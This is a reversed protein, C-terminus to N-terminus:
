SLTPELFDEDTELEFIEMTREVLLKELEQPFEVDESDSLWVEEAEEPTLIYEPKSNWLVHFEGAAFCEPDFCWYGVQFYCPWVDQCAYLPYARRIFGNDVLLVLFDRFRVVKGEM